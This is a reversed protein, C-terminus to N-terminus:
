NYSDLAPADHCMNKRDLIVFLNLLQEGVVQGMFTEPHRDGGGAGGHRRGQRGLWRVQDQEVQPKGIAVSQGQHALQATFALKRHDDQGALHLLDVADDAQFQPGVVIQGLWEVRTFQEGPDLGHKAPRSLASRGTSRLGQPRDDAKGAPLEVQRGLAQDRRIPAVDIEGLRFIGQQGSEHLLRLPHQRTVLKEVEGPRISPASTNSRLISTSIRRSRRFISAFGM